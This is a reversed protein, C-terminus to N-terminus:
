RSKRDRAAVVDAKQVRAAIETALRGVAESLAAAMANSDTSQMPVRLEANGSDLVDTDSRLVWRAGLEVHDSGSREFRLVDVTLDYTPVGGRPQVEIGDPLLRVALDERLTREFAQDLPEAWRDTKSYALQHSVTRSAIQERDLYGPITVHDVDLQRAARSSSAQPAPRTTTPALVFYNYNPSKGGLSCAACWALLCIVKM